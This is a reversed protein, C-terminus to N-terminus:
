LITALTFPMSNKSKTGKGSIEKGKNGRGGQESVERGWHEEYLRERHSIGVTM